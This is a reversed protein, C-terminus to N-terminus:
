SKKTSSAPPKKDDCVYFSLKVKKVKDNIQFTFLKETKQVPKYLAELADFTANAPAEANLHFGKKPELKLFGGENKFIIQNDTIRANAMLGFLLGLSLLVLKNKM